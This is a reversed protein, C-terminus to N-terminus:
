GELADDLPRTLYLAAVSSHEELVDYILADVEHPLLM